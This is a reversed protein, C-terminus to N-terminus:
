KRPRDHVEQELWKKKIEKDYKANLFFLLILWFPSFIIALTIIVGIWTIACAYTQWIESTMVDNINRPKRKNTM